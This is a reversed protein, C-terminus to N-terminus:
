WCPRRSLLPRGPFLKWARLACFYLQRPWNFLPTWRWLLRSLIVSLEVWANLWRTWVICHFTFSFYCRSSAAWFPLFWSFFLRMPGKFTQPGRPVIGQKGGGGWRLPGPSWIYISSYIDPKTPSIGVTIHKQGVWYNCVLNVWRFNTKVLAHTLM